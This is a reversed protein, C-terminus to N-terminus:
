KKSEKPKSLGVIVQAKSAKTKRFLDELVEGMDDIPVDKRNFSKVEDGEPLNLSGEPLHIPLLGKETLYYYEIETDNNSDDQSINATKHEAYQENSKAKYYDADRLYKIQSTTLRNKLYPKFLNWVEEETFGEQKGKDQVKKWLDAFSVFANAAQDFLSLLQKSPKM